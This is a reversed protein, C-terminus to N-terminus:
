QSGVLDFSTESMLTRRWSLTTYSLMSTFATVSTILTASSLPEKPTTKGFCVPNKSWEHWYMKALWFLDHSSLVRTAARTLSQHFPGLELMYFSRSSSIGYSLFLVFMLASLSSVLLTFYARGHSHLCIQSPRALHLVLQGHSSLRALLSRSLVLCLVVVGTCM